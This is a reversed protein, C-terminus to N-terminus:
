YCNADSQSEFPTMRNQFVMCKQNILALLM